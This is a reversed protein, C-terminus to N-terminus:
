FYEGMAAANGRSTCGPSDIVATTFTCAGCVAPFYSREHLMTSAPFSHNPCTQVTDTVTDESIADEEAAEEVDEPADTEACDDESEETADPAIREDEETEVDTGHDEIGDETADEDAESALSDDGMADEADDDGTHPLPRNSAPSSHSTPSAFAPAGSALQRLLQRRGKQPSPM